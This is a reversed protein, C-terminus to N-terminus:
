EVRLYIFQCLLCTGRSVQRMEMIDEAKRREARNGMIEEMLMYCWPRWLDNVAPGTGLSGADIGEECM